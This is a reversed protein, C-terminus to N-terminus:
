ASDKLLLYKYEYYEKIISKNPKQPFTSKMIEQPIPKLEWNLAGTLQEQDEISKLIHWSSSSTLM